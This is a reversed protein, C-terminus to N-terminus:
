DLVRTNVGNSASATTTGITMGFKIRNAKIDVCQYVGAGAGGTSAKIQLGTWKYVLGTNPNIVNCFTSGNIEAQLFVEMDDSITGVPVITFAIRQCTIPILSGGTPANSLVNAPQSGGVLALSGTGITIPQASIQATSATIAM